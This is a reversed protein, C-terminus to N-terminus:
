PYKGGMESGSSSREEYISLGLRLYTHLQRGVKYEKYSLVLLVCVCM